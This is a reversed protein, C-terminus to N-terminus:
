MALVHRRDFASSTPLGVNRLTPSRCCFPTSADQRFSVLPCCEVLPEPARAAVGACRFAHRLPTLARRVAAAFDLPQQHGVARCSFTPVHIDDDCVVIFDFRDLDGPRLLQNILTFKPQPMVAAQVTVAGLPGTPPVKTGLAMWRQEIDLGASAAFREVLHEAANERDALYIGLM